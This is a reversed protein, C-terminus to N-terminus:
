ALKIGAAQEEVTTHTRMETECWVINCGTCSRYDRVLVVTSRIRSGVSMTQDKRDLFVPHTCQYACLM